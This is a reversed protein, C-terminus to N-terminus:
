YHIDNLIGNKIRIKQTTDRTNSMTMQFTGTILKESISQKQIELIASASDKALLSYAALTSGVNFLQAQQMGRSASYALKYVGPLKEADAADFVLNFQLSNGKSDKGTAQLTFRNYLVGPLAPNSPYAVVKAPGTFFYSDSVWSDADIDFKVLPNRVIQLTLAERSCGLVLFISFFLLYFSRKM